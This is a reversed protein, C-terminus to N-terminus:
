SFVKKIVKKVEKKDPNQVKKRLLSGRSVYTTAANLSPSGENPNEMKVQEPLNSSMEQLNDVFTRQLMVSASQNRNGERTSKFLENASEIFKKIQGKNYVKTLTGNFSSDDYNNSFIDLALNEVNVIETLESAYLNSVAEIQQKDGNITDMLKM